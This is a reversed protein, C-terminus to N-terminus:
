TNISFYSLCNETVSLHKLYWNLADARLLFLHIVCLSMTKCAAAATPIGATFRIYVAERLTIKGQNEGGTMETPQILPTANNIAAM